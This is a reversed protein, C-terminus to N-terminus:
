LLDDASIRNYEYNNFVLKDGKFSYTDNEETEESMSYVAHIKGESATYSFFTFAINKQCSYMVGDRGFYLYEGKDDAWAGLLKEDIEFNDPPEPISSYSDLKEITTTQNTATNTLVATKKEKSFEYTYDGNLGYMLKTSFTDKGDIMQIDYVGIFGMTGMLLYANKNGDFSFVFHKMQAGAGDTIRWYGTFLDGPKALAHLKTLNAEIKIDAPDATAPVGTEQAATTEAAVTTEVAATMEAAATAASSSEEKEQKGCATVVFVSCLALATCLIRTFFKKM